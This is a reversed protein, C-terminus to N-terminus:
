RQYRQSHSIESVPDTLRVIRGFLVAVFPCTFCRSSQLSFLHKIIVSGHTLKGDCRILQILDFSFKLKEDSVVVISNKENTEKEKPMERAGTVPVHEMRDCCREVV